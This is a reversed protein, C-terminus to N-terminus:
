CGEFWLNLYVFVDQVNIDGSLDIDASADHAFWLDIFEFVDQVTVVQDGNVDAPCAPVGWRAIGVSSRAAAGSGATTFSGVVYLGAPKPGADDEDFVGMAVPVGGSLGGAVPEWM